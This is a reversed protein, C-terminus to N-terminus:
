ATVQMEAEFGLDTVFRNWVAPLLAGGSAQPHGNGYNV